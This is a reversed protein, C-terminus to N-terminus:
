CSEPISISTGFELLVQRPERVARSRYERSKYWSPAIGLLGSPYCSCLTCVVLNHVDATNKVVTLVTPANPNSTVIDIEAAAAPVDNLLREEFAPDTWARAVLSAGNLTKGAMVLKESIERVEEQTVLDKDMLVKMLAQYLEKGPRPEAGELNAARKEVTPRPDHSHGHHDHHDNSHDHAHAHDSSSEGTHICDSGDHTHDFLVDSEFDHGSSEASRELWPEYVEVEIVDDNSKGDHHHEPWLDKM